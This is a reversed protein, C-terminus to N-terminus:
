KVYINITAQVKVPLIKLLLRIACQSFLLIIPYTLILNNKRDSNVSIKKKGNLWHM